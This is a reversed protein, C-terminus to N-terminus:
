PTPDKRNGFRSAIFIRGPSIQIKWRTRPHVIPKSLVPKRGEDALELHEHVDVDTVPKM